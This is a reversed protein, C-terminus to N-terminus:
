LEKKLKDLDFNYNKMWDYKGEKINEIVKKSVFISDTTINLSGKEYIASGRFIDGNYPLGLKNAVDKHLERCTHIYVEERDLYSLFRLYGYDEIVDRIEQQTPNKFIEVSDVRKGKITDVYEERIEISFDIKLKKKYDSLEINYEELWDYEGKVIDDALEEGIAYYTENGMKIDKIVRGDFEGTGSFMNEYDINGLAKAMRDHYTRYASTIYVERKNKDAIFRIYNNESNNIVERMEQQTPNKFIEVYDVSSSPEFGIVFEEKIDELIENLRM